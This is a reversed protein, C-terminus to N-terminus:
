IITPLIYVIIITGKETKIERINTTVELKDEQLLKNTEKEVLELHKPNYNQTPKIHGNKEIGYIIAYKLLKDKKISKKM